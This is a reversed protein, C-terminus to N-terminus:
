GGAGGLLASLDLSHVHTSAALSVWTRALADKGAGLLTGVLGAAEALKEAPLRAIVVQWIAEELVNFATQVEGIDFGAEFREKAVTEAYRSVPVLTRRALGEEVLHLLRDLRARTESAGASEYHVTYARALAGTAAALVEAHAESLAETLDTSM